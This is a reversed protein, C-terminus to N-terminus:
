TVHLWTYSLSHISVTPYKKLVSWYIIFVLLPFFCIVKSSFILGFTASNISFYKRLKSFISYKLEVVSWAPYLIVTQNLNEIEAWAESSSLSMVRPALMLTCRTRMIMRESGSTFRKNQIHYNLQWTRYNKQLSVIMLGSSYDLAGKHTCCSFSSCNQKNQEWWHHKVEATVTSDGGALSGFTWWCWRMEEFHTHSPCSSWGMWHCPGM